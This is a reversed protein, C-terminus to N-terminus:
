GWNSCINWFFSVFLINGRIQNPNIHNQTIPSYFPTSMVAPLNSDIPGRPQWCCSPTWGRSAAQEGEQRKVEFLLSQFAWTDVLVFLKTPVSKEKLWGMKWKINVSRSLLCERPSVIVFGYLKIGHSRLEFDSSLSDWLTSAKKHRIDWRWLKDIKM